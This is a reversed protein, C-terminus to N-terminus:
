VNLEEEDDDEPDGEFEVDVGFVKQSDGDHMRDLTREIDHSFSDAWNNFFENYADEDLNKLAYSTSFTHGCVDTEEYIEDLYRDFVDHEMEEIVYDVAKQLYTFEKGNVTFKM